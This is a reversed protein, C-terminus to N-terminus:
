EKRTQGDFVNCTVSLQSAGDPTPNPHTMDAKPIHGGMNSRLWKENRIGSSFLAICHELVKKKNNKINWYM